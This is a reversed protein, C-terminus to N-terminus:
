RRRMARLDFGGSGPLAVDPRPGRVSRGARGEGHNRPAADGSRRCPGQAEALRCLSPIARDHFTAQAGRARGGEPKPDGGTGAQATAKRGRRRHQDRDAARRATARRAGRPEKCEPDEQFGLDTSRRQELRGDSYYALEPLLVSRSRRIAASGKSTDWCDKEMETSSISALPSCDSRYRSRRASTRSNRFPRAASKLCRRAPNAARDKAPSRGRGNRRQDAHVACAERGRRGRGAGPSSGCLRVIRREVFDCGRGLHACRRDSRANCEQM